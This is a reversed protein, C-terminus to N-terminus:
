DLWALETTWADMEVGIITARLGGGPLPQLNPNPCASFFSPSSGPIPTFFSEGAFSYAGPTDRFLNCSAYQKRNLVRVSTFANGGYTLYVDLQPPSGLLQLNLSYQWYLDGRSPSTCVFEQPSLWTCSTFPPSKGSILDTNSLIRPGASLTKYLGWTSVFNPWTGQSTEQYMRVSPVAIQLRAPLLVDPVSTVLCALCAVDANRRPGCCCPYPM